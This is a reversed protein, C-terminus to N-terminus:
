LIEFVISGEDWWIKSVDKITFIQKDNLEEEWYFITDVFAKYLNDIDPTQRHPSNLNELRKKKSISKPIKFIFTIKYNWNIMSKKIEEVTIKWKLIIGKLNKKQWHYAVARPMFRGNRGNVRVAPFPDVVYKEIM